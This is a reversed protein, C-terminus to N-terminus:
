LLKLYHVTDEIETYSNKKYFDYAPINKSTYLSVVKIGEEKLNNEIENLFITGYGKRKIDSRIFIEKINYQTMPLSVQLDGVCYGLTINNYVLKFGKFCPHNYIEKMYKDAMDMTLWDFNFPEERFVSYFMEGTEKMHSIDLNVLM